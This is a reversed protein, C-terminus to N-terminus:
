TGDLSQSFVLANFTGCLWLFTLLYLFLRSIVFIVTRLCNTFTNSFPSLDPVTFGGMFWIKLKLQSEWSTNWLYIQSTGAKSQSNSKQTIMLFLFLFWLKITKNGILQFLLRNVFTEFIWCVIVFLHWDSYFTILVAVTWDLYQDTDFLYMQSFFYNTAFFTIRKSNWGSFWYFFKAGFKKLVLTGPKRM